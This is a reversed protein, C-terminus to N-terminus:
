PRREAVPSGIVIHLLTYRTRTERDGAYLKKVAEADKKFHALAREALQREEFTVPTQQRMQNIVAEPLDAVKLFASIKSEVAAAERAVAQAQPDPGGVMKQFLERAEAVHAPSGRLYAEKWSPDRLLEAHKARADAATLPPGDGLIESAGPAGSDPTETM